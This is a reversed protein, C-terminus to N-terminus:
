LLSNLVESSLLKSGFYMSINQKFIFEYLYDFWNEISLDIVKINCNKNWQNLWSQFRKGGQSTMTM